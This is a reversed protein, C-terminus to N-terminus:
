DPPLVAAVAARVQDLHQKLTPAKATAAPQSVWLVVAEDGSSYWTGNMVRGSQTGSAVTTDAALPKFGSSLAGSRMYDAVVGAKKADAAHIVLLFYQEDSQSAGRYVVESVGNQKYVEAAQAPYLGLEVGKDVSVTSNNPDAVGPLAPLRQDVPQTTPAASSTAPSPAAPATAVSTGRSGFWWVGGVILALVILVGLALFLWTPRGGPHREEAVGTVPPLTGAHHPVPPVLGPLGGPPAPPSITTRANQVQPYRMSETAREDLPSPATTPRDTALLAASRSQEPKAQPAPTEAVRPAAAVEQKPPEADPNERPWVPETTAKSRPSAVPSPAFGGSVAALLEERQRRHDHLSIKGNALDADLRRLDEQWSM